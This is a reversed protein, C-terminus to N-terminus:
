ILGFSNAYQFIDSVNKASLKQNIRKRHTSITHVSNFTMVAIEKNMYGQAVLQLVEREKPTLSTLCKVSKCLSTNNLM